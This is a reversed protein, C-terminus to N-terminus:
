MVRRLSSGRSRSAWGGGRLTRLPPHIRRADTIFKRVEDLRRSRRRHEPQPRREAGDEGPREVQAHPLGM